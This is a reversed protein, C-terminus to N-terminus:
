AWENLGERAHLARLSPRAEAGQGRCSGSGPM